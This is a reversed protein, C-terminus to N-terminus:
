AESGTGPTGTRGLAFWLAQRVLLPDREPAIQAADILATRALHRAILDAALGGDRRSAADLVNRHEATAATIRASGDTLYLRRYRGSHDSLSQAIADLREGAHRRVLHHFQRHRTEWDELDSLRSVEELRALSAALEAVDQDTLKPVSLSAGMAEVVIRVAYVQELDELSMPTIRVMRNAQSQILGEAQLMRLAERLPTRSIGLQSALRVQSIPVDAAYEGQLIARRLHEHVTLTGSWDSDPAARDVGVGEQDV